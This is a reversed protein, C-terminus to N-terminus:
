ICMGEHESAVRSRTSTGLSGRFDDRFDIELTDDWVM